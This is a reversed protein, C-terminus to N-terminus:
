TKDPQLAQLQRRLTALQRRRDHIIVVMDAAETLEKECEMVVKIIEEILQAQSLPQTEVTVKSDQDEKSV